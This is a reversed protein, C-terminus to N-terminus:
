RLTYEVTVDKISNLKECLKKFREVAYRPINQKPIDDPVTIEFRMEAEVVM